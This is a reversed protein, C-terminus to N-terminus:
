CFNLKSGRKTLIESVSRSSLGSSWSGYKIYTKLIQSYFKVIPIKIVPYTKATCNLKRLWNRLSYGLFIGNIFERLILKDRRAYATVLYFALKELLKLPYFRDYAMIIAIMNRWPFYVMMHSFRKTTVSGFHHGAVIPVYAIKSGTCWLRLGLELDDAYMFFPSFFLGGGKLLSDVRFVAYACSIYSVFTKKSAKFDRGYVYTYWFNTVFIGASDVKTGDWNLILGQVGGIDDNDELFGVLKKLSDPEPLLDNNILAVYKAEKSRKTLAINNAVTFGYNKPLKLFKVVIDKPAFKKVADKIYEFSGDTSGNDVIIIELPRYGISIIGKLSELVITKTALSNYNVTIVTVLPRHVKNDKSQEM